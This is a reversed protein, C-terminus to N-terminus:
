VALWALGATLAYAAAEDYHTLLPGLPVERRFGGIVVCYCAALAMLNELTNAFGQRGVFAFAILIALRVCFRILVRTIAIERPIDPTSAM